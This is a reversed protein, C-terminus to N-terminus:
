HAASAVLLSITRGKCGGFGGLEWASVCMYESVCVCMCIRTGRDKHPSEYAFHIVWGRANVM